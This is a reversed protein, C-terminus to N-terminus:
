ECRLAVMPDVRTARRAPIYSALLAVAVLAMSILVFTQPDTASVGFLFTSMLRTLAFAAGLGLGVGVLALRLGQGVVLKLVSGTRAGLAMRIGIEHTRQTVSYSIVGYVGVAALLLAVAAFIGLLLMNFRQEAISAAMVEPMTQVRTVPVQSDVAWVAKKAQDILTSSGSNSRIVFSMWRKWPQDQQEYATYVAPQEPQGLEFHKIDGVVGVITMWPPANGRAWRIRAGIPDEDTFYERVASRNLICVPLAGDRDQTTFDRGGVLPIRMAKFYGRTASRTSIEPEDGPALPARGDIIFNHTLWDGGLPLESILAAEVGPLSNLEDLVQTRFRNQKPIERYRAEPLEIRMTVVGHPDFGPDTSRLQWFSRILLGAAILVVLSIALESVVLLSRLRRKSVGGSASRGGEKLAENLDARSASWAPVLGFLIGTITSVALTFLLVAGDIGVGSLRPLNEPKLAILLNIAWLALVMGAAGGMIAVLVSETLMQRVLRARGAGLASRVAIERHRSAAQALLLNAFNACAILLVLGVAAFLLLLAPRTDGVLNEKLPVLVRRRGKNEEPYQEALRQDIVEMESQAQAVTVDSKLRWFTRLFHVGRFSAAVPNGVRLSVFVDPETQDASAGKRMPMTFTSALVGIVTYNNGSLPITKGLVDASGDLHRQWFGRGVVVVREGGFRDEERPLTRGMETQAGLVEFLGADILAAQVQVPESGGSYDFAQLAFAGAQEFSQSQAEIDVFDLLSQNSRITVLREASPYPLSRLLVANVVSFIATNAGIGLALATVAVATFGRNKLLHRIGYRVDKLLNDM